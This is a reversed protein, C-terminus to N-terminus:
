NANSAAGNYKGAYYTYIENLEDLVYSDVSNEDKAIEEKLAEIRKGCQIM